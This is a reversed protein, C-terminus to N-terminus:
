NPKRGAVIIMHAPFSMLGKRFFKRAAEKVEQEVRVRDETSLMTLKERLTASTESRLEWFEPFSIPAEIQFELLHERVKTAGAIAM